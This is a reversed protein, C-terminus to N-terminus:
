RPRTCTPRHQGDCVQGDGRVGPPHRLGGHRAPQDHHRRSRHGRRVGQVPLGPRQPLRRRRFVGRQRHLDQRIQGGRGGRQAGGGPVDEAQLGPSHGLHRHLHSNPPKGCAPHCGLGPRYREQQGAGPRCGATTKLRKAIESVAEFDGESAAPFGAELIDVGLKELQVALRMKENTNMSAGPSQEGDRLTTDFIKIRETM